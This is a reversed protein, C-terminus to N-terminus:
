LICNCWSLSFLSLNSQTQLIDFYLYNQNIKEMVKRLLYFAKLKDNEIEISVYPLASSQWLSNFDNTSIFTTPQPSTKDHKLINRM